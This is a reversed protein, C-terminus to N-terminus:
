EDFQKLVFRIDLYSEESFDKEQQIEEIVRDLEKYDEKQKSEESQKSLWEQILPIGQLIIEKYNIEKIM